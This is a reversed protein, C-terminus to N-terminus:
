DLGALKNAWRETYFGYYSAGSKRRYKVFYPLACWIVSPLGIVLFYLPGLIVSQLTHGYEHRKTYEKNIDANSIFIFMGLSVSGRKNDWDTALAGNVRYHRGKVNVLFLILGAINQVIGWSWQLVYYVVLFVTM